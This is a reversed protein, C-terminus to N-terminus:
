SRDSMRNRPKTLLGKLVGPPGGIRLIKRAVRGLDGSGGPPAGGGAGPWPMDSNLDRVSCTGLSSFEM